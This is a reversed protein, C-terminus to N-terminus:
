MQLPEEGLGAKRMCWDTRKLLLWAVLGQAAPAIMGFLFVKVLIVGLVKFFSVSAPHESFILTMLTNLVASGAGILALVAIYVGLM